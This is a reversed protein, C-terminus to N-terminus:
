KSYILSISLKLGTLRLTVNLFHDQLPNNGKIRRDRETLPPPQEYEKVATSVTFSCIGLMENNKKDSCPHM